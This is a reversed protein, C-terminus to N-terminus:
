QLPRLVHPNFGKSILFDASKRLEEPTKYWKGQLYSGMWVDTIGAHKMIDLLEPKEMWAEEQLSIHFKRITNKHEKSTSKCAYLGLGSLVISSVLTNQIFSRRSISNIKLKSM